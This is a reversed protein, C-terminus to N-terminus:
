QVLIFIPEGEFFEAKGVDATLSLDQALADDLRSTTLTLVLLAVLGMLSCTDLARHRIM